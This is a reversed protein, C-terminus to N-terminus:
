LPRGPNARNVRVGAKQDARVTLVPCTAQRLLRPTTSGFSLREVLNHGPAGVVILGAQQEAAVRLIEDASRGTQVREHVHCYRGVDDPILSHLRGWDDADRAIEVVRVLTLHADAEEALSVAFALADLSADSGDVGAVIHHFLDPVADTADPAARPITMVPCAAKRVVNEAVSGLVMHELGSRGHTGLVVLDADEAAALIEEAAHGELVLFEVPVVGRVRDPVLARLQALLEAHDAPSLVAASAALPPRSVPHVHLVSLRAGYWKAVVIAHNLARRSCESFDVACLVHRIDVM